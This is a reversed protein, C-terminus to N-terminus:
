MRDAPREGHHPGRVNSLIDMAVDIEADLPLDLGVLSLIGRGLSNFGDGDIDGDVQQGLEITNCSM